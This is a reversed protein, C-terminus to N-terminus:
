SECITMKGNDSDEFAMTSLTSESTVTKANTRTSSYVRLHKFYQSMWLFTLKRDPVFPFNITKPTGVSLCM